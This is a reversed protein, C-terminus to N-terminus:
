QGSDEFWHRLRRGEEVKRGRKRRGRGKKNWKEKGRLPGRFELQAKGDPSSQLSGLLTRSLFGASLANKPINVATTNDKLGPRPRSSIRPCKTFTKATAKAKSSSTKAKAEYVLDKIVLSIQLWTFADPPQM